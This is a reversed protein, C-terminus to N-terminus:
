WGGVEVSEWDQQMAVLESVYQLRLVIQGDRKGGREKEACIQSVPACVRPHTHESTQM